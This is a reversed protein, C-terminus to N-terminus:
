SSTRLIARLRDHAREVDGFDVVDDMPTQAKTDHRIQGAASRRVEVFQFCRQLGAVAIKRDM